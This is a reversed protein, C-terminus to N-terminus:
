KNWIPSQYSSLIHAPRITFSTNSKLTPNPGPSPVSQSQSSLRTNILTIIKPKLSNPPNLPDSRPSLRMHTMLKSVNHNPPQKYKYVLCSHNVFKYKSPIVLIHSYIQSQTQFQILSQTHTHTHPPPPPPPHAHWM